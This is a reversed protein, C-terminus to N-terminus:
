ILKWDRVFSYVALLNWGVIGAFGLLRVLTPWSSEWIWLGVLIPLFVLWVIIKLVIPLAGVWNWVLDLWAQDMVLAVALGVWLVLFVLNAYTGLVRPVTVGWFPSDSM